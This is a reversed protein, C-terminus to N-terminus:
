LKSIPLKTTKQTLKSELNITLFLKDISNKMEFSHYKQKFIDIIIHSQQKLPELIYKVQNVKDESQDEFRLTGDELIYSSIKIQNQIHNKLASLFFLTQEEITSKNFETYRKIIEQSIKFEFNYLIKSSDTLLNDLNLNQIPSKLKIDEPFGDIIKSINDKILFNTTKNYISSLLELSIDSAPLFSILNIILKIGSDNYKQYNNAFDVVIELKIKQPEEKIFFYYESLLKEKHLIPYIDYGKKKLHKLFTKITKNNSFSYSKLIQIYIDSHEISDIKNTFFNVFLNKNEEQKMKLAPDNRSPYFSKRVIDINKKSNKYFQRSSPTSSTKAEYIEVFYELKKDNLDSFCYDYLLELESQNLYTM